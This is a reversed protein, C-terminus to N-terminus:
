TRAAEVRPDIEGVNFNVQKVIEQGMTLRGDGRGRLPLRQEALRRRRRGGLGVGVGM